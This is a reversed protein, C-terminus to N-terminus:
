FIGSFEATIVVGNNIYFRRYQKNILSIGREYIWEEDYEVGEWYSFFIIRSPSGLVAKLEDKTKGRHQRVDSILDDYKEISNEFAKQQSDRIYGEISVCGVFCFLGFLVILFNCNRNLEM